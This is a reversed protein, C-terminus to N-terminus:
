ILQQNVLVIRRHEYMIDHSLLSSHIDSGTREVILCSYNRLIHPLDANAWVNPEGMSEILIGGALLMIKVGIKEGTSTLIGGRKVNIEYNFHDLVKATRTYSPQLSEWADVTERYRNKNKSKTNTKLNFPADISSNSDALVYPAIPGSKPITFIPDPPPNLQGDSSTLKFNPELTPDM